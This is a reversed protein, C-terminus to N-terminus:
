DGNYDIPRRTIMPAIAAQGYNREAFEDRIRWDNVDFTGAKMVKAIPVAVTGEIM